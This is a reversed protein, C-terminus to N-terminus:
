RGTQNLGDFWQVIDQVCSEPSEEHALHGLGPWDRRTAHPLPVMAQDALTPSITQDNLGIQMRIPCRLAPLDAQLRHLDWHAMLQLVGRIHAPQRLLYRYGELGNADLRSGTSEILREIAGDRQAQKAALWGALPNHGILWAALPFLWQASGPLPLWAPNLGVLHMPTQPARALVDLGCRAAIAAGASHGIWLVPQWQMQTLLAQVAQAVAPLTPRQGQLASSFGHGPLDLAVVQFRQALLPMVNRWSHTSAGTGHLLLAVPGSGMTQVHWRMHASRVFQSCSAHPWRNHMALWDLAPYLSDFM